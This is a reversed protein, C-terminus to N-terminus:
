RHGLNALINQRWMRVGCKIDTLRYPLSIGGPLIGKINCILRHMIEDIKLNRTTTITSILKWSFQNRLMKVDNWDYRAGLNYFKKWAVSLQAHFKLHEYTHFYWSIWIKKPESLGLISNKGNIFTLIGVNTPMKVNILLFFKMSLQTSCSYLKIVEPGPHLLPSLSLNHATSGWKCHLLKRCEAAILGLVMKPEYCMANIVKRGM